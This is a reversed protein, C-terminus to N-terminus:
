QCVAIWHHNGISNSCQRFDLIPIAALDELDVGLVQELDEPCQVFTCLPALYAPTLTKYPAIELETKKFVQRVNKCHQPLDLIHMCQSPVSLCFHVCLQEPVCILEQNVSLM